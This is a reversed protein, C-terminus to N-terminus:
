YTKHPRGEAEYEVICQMVTGLLLAAQIALREDAILTGHALGNRDDSYDAIVHDIVTPRFAQEMRTVELLSRGSTLPKSRWERIKATDTEPAATDRDWLVPIKKWGSLTYLPFGSANLIEAYRWIMGEAQTVSLLTVTQLHRNTLPERLEGIIRDIEAADGGTAMPTDKFLKHLTETYKATFVEAAIKATVAAPDSTSRWEKLLDHYTRLPAHILFRFPFSVRAADCGDIIWEENTLPTFRLSNAFAPSHRRAGLESLNAAAISQDSQASVKAVLAALTTENKKYKEVDNRHVGAKRAAAHNDAAATRARAIVKTRRAGADAIAADREADNYGRFLDHLATAADDFTAANQVKAVQDKVWAHNSDGYLSEAVEHCAATRLTEDVPVEGDFRSKYLGTFFSLGSAADRALSGANM